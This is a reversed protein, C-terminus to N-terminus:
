YMYKATYNTGDGIFQMISESKGESSAFTPDMRQWATGDFFIVGDVWGTEESWVSIWAHYATGAYGVVLKCPVQQSRLMGAMLAAYDFCIGSKKELVTDLVPLYGSQVTAAKQTDYTLTDVVYDYVLEVKKLADTEGGILEAAKRVTKSGPRYNVYQNPLLYPAFENELTVDFSASIEAAYKNDVVNEFVTVQYAGNGDSLPFVEWAGVTLNYTYTTAPGKVQAKLRKDTKGTFCIMVYGKQPYSYDIVARESKKVYIGGAEPTVIEPVAAPASSLAAGEAQLPSMEEALNSGTVNEPIENPEKETFDSEKVSISEEKTNENEANKPPMQESVSVEEQEDSAVPGEAKEEAPPVVVAADVYGEHTSTEPTEPVACGALLLATLMMSLIGKGQVM